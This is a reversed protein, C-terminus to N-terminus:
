HKHRGVGSGALRVHQHLPHDIQQQAAFVRCLNKTDGECLRGGGIHRCAHEIRQRFPRREIIGREVRAYFKRGALQGIRRLAGARPPKKCVRQFSGASQLDLGNVGETRTQQMLEREFGVHRRAELHKVFCCGCLQEILQRKLNQQFAGGFRLTRESLRQIRGDGGGGIHCELFDDRFRDGFAVQNRFPCRTRAANLLTAGARPRM